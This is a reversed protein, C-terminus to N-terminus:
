LADVALLFGSLMDAGSTEGFAMLRRAAAVVEGRDTQPLVALLRHWAESAEGRAAAELYATSIRTTHGPVADVIAQRFGALNSPPWVTLAVLAGVLVDDGSPTLGPGLGALKRAGGAVDQQARERLGAQLQTMGDHARYRLPDAGSGREGSGPLYHAFSGEPAEQLVTRRVIDLSTRLTAAEVEDWPMLTADWIHARALDIEIGDELQLSSPDARATMGIRWQQFSFDGPPGVVINLPGNLLPPSVLAVISGDLDLYCSREFTAILTGSRPQALFNRVGKSISIAQVRTIPLGAKDVM